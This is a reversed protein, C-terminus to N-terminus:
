KELEKPLDAFLENVNIYSSLKEVVNRDPKSFVTMIDEEGLNERINFVLQERDLLFEANM